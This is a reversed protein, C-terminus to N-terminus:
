KFKNLYHSESPLPDIRMLKPELKWNSNGQGRYWIPAESDKHSKLSDILQGISEIEITEFKM